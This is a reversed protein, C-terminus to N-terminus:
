SGCTLLQWVSTSNTGAVICNYLERNPPTAGINTEDWYWDGKRYYTNAPLTANPTGNGSYQAGMVGTTRTSANGDTQRVNFQGTFNGAADATSILLYGGANLPDPASFVKLADDPEGTVSNEQAGDSPMAVTQGPSPTGSLRENPDVKSLDRNQFVNFLQVLEGIELHEVPGCKVTVNDFTVGGNGLKMRFTTQQVTANMAAWKAQANGGALNIAHKGPKLWGNFPREVFTHTFSYQLAALDTCLAQALGTPQAEGTSLYQSFSYNGSPLNTLKVRFHHAHDNPQQITLTGSGITKQKAYSFHATVIVENVQAAAGGPTKMWSMVSSRPDLLYQFTGLDVAAGTADDVVSIDLAGGTNINSSLLTLAGAGSTPINQALSPVKSKWLALSTPDFAFSTIISSVASQRPGALDVAFDLSRLGPPAGCNVNATGSGLAALATGVVPSGNTTYPANAGGVLQGVTVPGTVSLNNQPWIDLATSLLAGNAISRYFIAVRGAQLEPREQIDLVQHVRGSADTYEYPLTVRQLNARKRVHFTPPTTSYDIETFCDPHLRLCHRLADGCKLNTQPYWACYRACDIQGVQLNAGLLIAWNLIDTIQQGTHIHNSVPAPNYNQGPNPQFLVVNVYPLTTYAGTALNSVIKMMQNYPCRDLFYWEDELTYDSAAKKADSLAHRDTRLGDFQKTNDPSFIQVRSEFPIVPALHAPVGPLNLKVSSSRHSAFNVQWGQGVVKGGEATALQKFTVLQKAGNGDVYQLTWDSM